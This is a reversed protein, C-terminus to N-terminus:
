LFYHFAILVFNIFAAKRHSTLDVTARGLREWPYGIKFISKWNIGCIWPSLGLSLIMRRQETYDAQSKLSDCDLPRFEVSLGGQRDDSKGPQPKRRDGSVFNVQETLMHPKFLPIHKIIFRKQMSEGMSSKADQPFASEMRLIEIRTLSGAKGSRQPFAFRNETVLVHGKRRLITIARTGKERGLCNM